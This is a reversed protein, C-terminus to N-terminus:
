RDVTGKAPKGAAPKGAAPKGAAPKAAAPTAPPLVREKGEPKRIQRDSPRIGGDSGSVSGSAPTGAPLPSRIKTPWEHGPQPIYFEKFASYIERMVQNSVYVPGLDTQMTVGRSLFTRNVYEEVSAAPRKRDIIECAFDRVRIVDAPSLPVGSRTFRGGEELKLHFSRHPVLRKTAFSHHIPTQYHVHDKPLEGAGKGSYHIVDSDIKSLRGQFRYDVVDVGEGRGLREFLEMTAVRPSEEIIRSLERQDSVVSANLVYHEKLQYRIAAEGARTDGGIGKTRIVINPNDETSRMVENYAKVAADYRVKDSAELMPDVMAPEFIYMKRAPYSVKFIGQYSIEEKLHGFDAIRPLDIPPLGHERIYRAAATPCRVAGMIEVIAQSRADGATPKFIADDYPLPPAGPALPGWMGEPMEGTRTPSEIWYPNTFRTDGEQVQAACWAEWQEPNIHLGDTEIGRLCRSRYMWRMAENKHFHSWGYMCCALALEAPGDRTIKAYAQTPTLAESVLSARCYPEVLQQMIAPNGEQRALYTITYQNAKHEEQYKDLANKGYVLDSISTKLRRNTKGHFSVLEFKAISRVQPKSPEWIQEHEEPTAPRGLAKEKATCESALRDQEMKVDKWLWLSLDYFHDFLVPWYVGFHVNITGGHQRHQYILQVPVMRSFVQQSQWAIADGKKVRPIVNHGPPQSTITCYYVGLRNPVPLATETPKDVIWMLMDWEDVAAQDPEATSFVLARLREEATARYGPDLVKISEGMPMHHFGAFPYLSTYDLVQHRERVIGPPVFEYVDSEGGILAGRLLVNEGYNRTQPMMVAEDPKFRAAIAEISWDLSALGRTISSEYESRLNPELGEWNVLSFLVDAPVRPLSEKGIHYAMSPMTVYQEISYLPKLEDKLAPPLRACDLFADCGDRLKIWCEATARVDNHCYETFATYADTGQIRKAFASTGKDQEIDKIVDAARLAKMHIKFSGLSYNADEFVKQVVAHKASGKMTKVKMERATRALSSGTFRRMDIVKVRDCRIELLKNGIDTIGDSRHTGLKGWTAFGELLMHSDFFAGHFTVVLLRVRHERTHQTLKMVLLQTAMAGELLVARCESVPKSGDVIMYSLMSVVTDHKSTTMHNLTEYDVVCVHIPLKKVLSKRILDISYYQRSGMVWLKLDPDQWLRLVDTAEEVVELISVNGGVAVKIVKDGDECEELVKPNRSRAVFSVDRVSSARIGEEDDAEEHKFRGVKMNGGRTVRVDDIVVVKARPFLNIWKELPMGQKIAEDALVLEEDTILPEGTIRHVPRRDSITAIIGKSNCIVPYASRLSFEDTSGDPVLEDEDREPVDPHEMETDDEPEDESATALEQEHLSGVTVLHPMPIMFDIVRAPPNSAVIMVVEDIIDVAERPTLTRLYEDSTAAVTWTYNDNDREIQRLLVWNLPLGLMRTVKHCDRGTAEPLHKSREDWEAEAAAICSAETLVEWPIGNPYEEGGWEDGPLTFEISDDRPDLRELADAVLAPIIERSSLIELTGKISSAEVKLAKEDPAASHTPTRRDTQRQLYEYARDGICPIIASMREHGRLLKAVSSGLGSNADIKATVAYGSDNPPLLSYMWGVEGYRVIATIRTVHGARLFLAVVETVRLEWELPALALLEPASAAAIKWKGCPRVGTVFIWPVKVPELVIGYHEPDLEWDRPNGKILAAVAAVQDEPVAALGMARVALASPICDRNLEDCATNRLQLWYHTKNIAAHKAHAIGFILYVPELVFPNVFRLRVDSLGESRDYDNVTDDMFRTGNTLSPENEKLQAIAEECEVLYVETTMTRHTTTVSEGIVEVIPIGTIYKIHRPYRRLLAMLEELGRILETRTEAPLAAHLVMFDHYDSAAGVHRQYSHDRPVVRFGFRGVQPMINATRSADLGLLAARAKTVRRHFDVQTAVDFLELQRFEEVVGLAKELAGVAAENKKLAVEGSDEKLIRAPAASAVSQDIYSQIKQRQTTAMEQDMVGSPEFLGGFREHLEEPTGAIPSATARRVFDDIRALGVRLMAGLARFAEDVLHNYADEHSAIAQRHEAARVEVVDRQERLEKLHEERQAVEEPDIAPGLSEARKVLAEVGLVLAKLNAEAERTRASDGRRHSKRLASWADRTAEIMIRQKEIKRQLRARKASVQADEAISPLSAAEEDIKSLLEQSQAFSRELGERRDAHGILAARLAPVARALMENETMERLIDVHIARDADFVPREPNLIQVYAVFYRLLDNKTPQLPAEMPLEEVVDSRSAM